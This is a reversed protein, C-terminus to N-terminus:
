SNDKEKIMYPKLADLLESLDENEGAHVVLELPKALDLSFLGLISKANVVYRESCVDMPYEIEIIDNVFSKVHEVTTLAIPIKKMTIVMGTRRDATPNLPVLRRM